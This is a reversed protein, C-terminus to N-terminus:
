KYIFENYYYGKETIYRSTEKVKKFVIFVKKEKINIIEENIKKRLEKERIEFSIDTYIKDAIDDQMIGKLYRKMYILKLLNEMETM